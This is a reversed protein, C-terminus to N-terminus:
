QSGLRISWGGAYFQNAPTAYGDGTWAAGWEIHRKPTTDAGVKLLGPEGPPFQIVGHM